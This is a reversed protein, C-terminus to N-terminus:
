VAHPDGGADDIGRHHAPVALGQVAPDRSRAAGAHVGTAEHFEDRSLSGHSGGEAEKTILRDSRGGGGTGAMARQANELLDKARAREARESLIVVEALSCTM